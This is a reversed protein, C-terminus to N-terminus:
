RHFVNGANFIVVMLTACKGKLGLSPCVMGGASCLWLCPSVPGPFRIKKLLSKKEQGPSLGLQRRGPLSTRRERERVCIGVLGTQLCSAASTPPHSVRLGSSLESFADTSFSGSKAVGSPKLTRVSGTYGGYHLLGWDQGGSSQQCVRPGSPFDRPKGRREGSPRLHSGVLM